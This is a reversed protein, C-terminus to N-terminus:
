SDRAPSADDIPAGPSSESAPDDTLEQELRRLRADLIAADEVLREIQVRQRSIVVSVSLLAVFVFLALVAPVAYKM